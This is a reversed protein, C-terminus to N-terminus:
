KTRGTPIKSMYTECTAGEDHVTAYGTKKCRGMHLGKGNYDWSLWNKCTMCNKCSTLPQETNKM